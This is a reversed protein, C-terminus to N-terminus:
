ETEDGEDDDGRGVELRVGEGENWGWVVVYHGALLKWEEVEDLRELGDVREREGEGVWEEWIQDVTKSRVERFGAELLRREQDEQTQYVALTPMTVGRAALNSIMMRGFADEPLIPEYIVLGLSPFCSTFSTIIDSATSPPLYCLCCESLLLTPCEQSLGPLSSPSSPFFRLDLPHLTLTNGTELNAHQKSVYSQNTAPNPLPMPPSLIGNLAPVTRILTNKKSIIVPFDIEHYHINQHKQSSTFLRFCRTDTGAGLSVIQRPKGTSFTSSLFRHILIDIATTRTYTGRNIIPLRRRTPLGPGPGSHFPPPSPAVFYSAFPDILYDLEVASLRSVAADADTGQITTDHSASPGSSSGRHSGGRGRGRSGGRNGRLSLLNPISPASM